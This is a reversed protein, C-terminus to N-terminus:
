TKRYKRILRKKHSVYYKQKFNYGDIVILLVLSFILGTALSLISFYLSNFNNKFIIVSIIIITATFLQWFKKKYEIEKLEKNLWRIQAKLQQKVNM